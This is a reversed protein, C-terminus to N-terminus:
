PATAIRALNEALTAVGNLRDEPHDWGRTYVLKHDGRLKASGPQRSIFEVLGGPNAFDNGRFTIVAGKPGAEVKEMNAQRCYHKITTVKILHDVEEPLRGFRDVLEVAFADIEARTELSAVRRYLEMRLSLDAVYKEPILVSTGINITPSWKEEAENAEGDMGTAKANAVAEELMQQYLEFGVEKVHGSQEQGLLNGAGRIDLDHSALTFGAGLTDLSQLVRLRKEAAETPKKRPPLTLYAYARTKSRGVRGRIQYLQALGFMDSRYTILTNARPVDIGSEVINTAVLVDYEGDYFANMVQDLDKAAMQGHATVFKVEPVHQELYNAVEGLDKLRPCVFFSQGGRYHERLLAERIVVPDFPLVFTRVALRDVPPTAIISLDRIGTMALQLTRPIPTATLTLVHLDARMEKLREKHAVGFHQEEDVIVLGLNKINVSKGLLAHTGIVIDVQGSALGAKTVNAEKTSVMRSLQAVNIPLGKFREAFTKYHQRALLTTPTVIAVQKGTMAAVFAARLAVETKGFGVDGCILRDMPKGSTMDSLVDTIARLQDDTEEYPFRACFEEYAGPPPTMREGKRLARAAAIAILQDAMEMVKAKLKAKRAQWGSGGLKDLNAASDSGGYRSLMEINEVPLYIKDGGAYHLEVCDHPAGSIDINKLGVYQGIGHEVHVVYDMPSLQSAESIFESGKRRSTRKPRALRDGLIDQESIIALDPTEFGHELPLVALSVQKSKKTAKLGSLDTIDNVPSIGHEKLVTKNRALSGDSFHALVVQKGNEMTQVLHRRVHDYINSDKEKREASFERGQRGEADLIHDGSAGSRFPSFHALTRAATLEQWETNDLYLREPPLPHYDADKEGEVAKRSEYYDAITDFRADKSEDFLHDTFITANPLLDTLRAMKEHFLPLWHEMGPHKRKESVAEYLPDGSTVAGFNERYGSRFRSVADDNLLFETAAIFRVEELKDTSRQSIPEFYRMGDIQNGFLDIRVPQENGPPFVDIIGGRIAFEGPEMVTGIRTFGNAIFFDTLKKLNIHDGVKASFSAKDIMGPSPVRQLVANVTTLIIRPKGGKKSIDVLASMREAVIEPNPSVRDYPLCDWAPFSIVEVAPDFFKLSAETTAMRMDERLIYIIDQTAKKALASLIYADYGEPVAELSLSVVQKESAVLWDVLGTMVNDTM